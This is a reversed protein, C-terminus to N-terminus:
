SQSTDSSPDPVQMLVARGALGFIYNMPCFFSNNECLFLLLFVFLVVVVVSPYFINWLSAMILIALGVRQLTERSM